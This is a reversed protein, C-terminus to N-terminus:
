FIKIPNKEDPHQEVYDKAEMFNGINKNYKDRAYKTYQQEISHRSGYHLTLEKGLGFVLFSPQKTTIVMIQQTEDNVLLINQGNRQKLFSTLINVLNNHSNPSLFEVKLNETLWTPLDPFMKEADDMSNIVVRATVDLLM